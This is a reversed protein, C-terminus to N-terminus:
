FFSQSFLALLPIALVFGWSGGGQLSLYLPLDLIFLSQRRFSRTGEVPTWGPDHEGSFIKANKVELTEKQPNRLLESFDSRNGIFPPFWHPDPLIKGYQRRGVLM